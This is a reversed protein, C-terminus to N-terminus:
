KRTGAGPKTCFCSSDVVNGPVPTMTDNGFIDIVKVPVTDRGPRDYTHQATALELERSQRIRLSKWGRAGRVDYLWNVTKIAEKAAPYWRLDPPLVEYPSLPYNPHLAM